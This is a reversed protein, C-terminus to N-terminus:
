LILFNLNNDPYYDIM